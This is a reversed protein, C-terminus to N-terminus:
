KLRPDFPDLRGYVKFAVPEGNLLRNVELSFSSARFKDYRFRIIVQRNKGLITPKHAQSFAGSQLAENWDRTGRSPHAYSDM